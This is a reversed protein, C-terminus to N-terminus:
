GDLGRKKGLEAVLAIQDEGVEARREFSEVLDFQIQGLGPKVVEEREGMGVQRDDFEAKVLGAALGVLGGGGLTELRVRRLPLGLDGRREGAL